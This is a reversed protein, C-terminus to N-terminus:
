FLVVPGTLLRQPNELQKPVLKFVFICSTNCKETRVNTETGGERRRGQGGKLPAKIDTYLKLLNSNVKM